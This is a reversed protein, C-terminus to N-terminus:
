AEQKGRRNVNLFVSSLLSRGRTHHNSLYDGAHHEGQKEGEAEAYHTGSAPEVFLASAGHTLVPM